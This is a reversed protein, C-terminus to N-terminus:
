LMFAASGTPLLQATISAETTSSTVSGAEIPKQVLVKQKNFVLIVPNSITAETDSLSTSRTTIPSLAPVHLQIQMKVTDDTIGYKNFPDDSCGSWLLATALLSYTLNRLNM